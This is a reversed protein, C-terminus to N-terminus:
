VRLGHAEWVYSRTDAVRQCMIDYMEKPMGINPIRNLSTIKYIEPAKIKEMEPILDLLWSRTRVSNEEAIKVIQKFSHVGGQYSRDELLSCITDVAGLKMADPNDFAEKGGWQKHHYQCRHMRLSNELYKDIIERDVNRRQVAFGVLVDWELKNGAGVIDHPRDPDEGSIGLEKLFYEIHCVHQVVHLMWWLVEAATPMLTKSQIMPINGEKM